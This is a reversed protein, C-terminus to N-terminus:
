KINNDNHFFEYNNIQKYGEDINNDNFEASDYEVEFSDNM